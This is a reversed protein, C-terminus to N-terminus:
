VQCKQRCVAVVARRTTRSRRFHRRTSWADCLCRQTWIHRHEATTRVCQVDRVASQPGAPLWQLVVVTQRLEIADSQDDRELLFLAVEDDCV